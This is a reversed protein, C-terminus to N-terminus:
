GNETYGLLLGYDKKEKLEESGFMLSGNPYLLYEKNHFCTKANIIYV